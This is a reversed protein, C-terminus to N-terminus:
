TSFIFKSHKMSKIIVLIFMHNKLYSNCIEVKFQGYYMSIQINVEVEFPINYYLLLFIENTSNGLNESKSVGWTM